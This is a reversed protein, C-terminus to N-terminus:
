KSFCVPVSGLDPSGMINYTRKSKQKNVIVNNVDVEMSNPLNFDIKLSLYADSVLSNTGTKIFPCDYYVSLNDNLAMVFGKGQYSGSLIFFPDEYHHIVSSTRVYNYKGAYLIDSIDFGSNQASFSLAIESSTFSDDIFVYIQDNLPNLYLNVKGDDVNIDKLLKYWKLLNDAFYLLIVGQASGDYIYAAILYGNKVPLVDKVILKQANKFGYIRVSEKLNDLIDSISYMFIQKETQNSLTGFILPKDLINLIKEASFTYDQLNIRIAKNVVLDRDFMATFMLSKRATLYYYSGYRTINLTECDTCDYEIVDVDKFAQSDKRDLLIYIKDDSTNYAAVFFNNEDIRFIDSFYEGTAGAKAYMINGNAEMEGYVGFNNKYRGIFLYKSDFGRIVKTIEYFDNYIRPFFSLIECGNEPNKDSDEFQDKCFNYSCSGNMCYVAMVNQTILNCDKINNCSTGCGSPTGFETECGDSWLGNCNHYNSLCECSNNRCTANLSCHESILCQVCKGDVTDCYPTEDACVQNSCIVVGTDGTTDPYIVDSSVADSISDKPVCKFDENCVLGNLCTGDEFCRENEMGIESRPICGCVFVSLILILVMIRTM